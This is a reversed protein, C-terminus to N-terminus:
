KGKSKSRNHEMFAGDMEAIHYHMAETQDEDLELAVCYDHVIKWPIPGLGMGIQRSSSIDMFGYYYLELGSGIEPAFAIEDPIERDERLAEAMIKIEISGRKLAHIL